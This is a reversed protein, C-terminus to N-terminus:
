FRMKKEYYKNQQELNMDELKINKSRGSSGRGRNDDSLLIPNKQYLKIWDRLQKNSKLGYKKATPRLWGIRGSLYDEVAAVKVEYSYKNFM